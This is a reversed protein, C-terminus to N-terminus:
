NGGAGSRWLPHPAQRVVYNAIPDPADIGDRLNPAAVPPLARMELPIVGAWADLDVDEPDDAPPGSRSKVSAEDLPMRLVTTARLEKVTPPRVDDWRNPILANTFAGLAVAKEEEDTVDAVPGLIVVSRYNISHSFASRALVIGDVLTATVCVRPAAKMSRLARSAASGHLYLADGVRACVTPIVYPQDGVAFGMHCVLAEDLIADVEDRWYSAREPYRKLTTRETRAVTRKDTAVHQTM